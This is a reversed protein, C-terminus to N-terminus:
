GKITLTMIIFKTTRFTTAGENWQGTQYLMPTHLKCGNVAQDIQDVLDEEDQTINLCNCSADLM